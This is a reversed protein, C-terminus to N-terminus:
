KRKFHTGKWDSRYEVIAKALELVSTALEILLIFLEM